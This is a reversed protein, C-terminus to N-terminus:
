SRRALSESISGLLARQIGRRGHSGIVVLTPELERIIELLGFVVTEERLHTKVELGLSRAAAALKGLEERAVQLYPPDETGYPEQTVPPAVSLIDLQAHLRAALQAAKDFARLSTAGVHAAVLIRENDMTM